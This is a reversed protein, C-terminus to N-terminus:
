TALQWRVDVVASGVVLVVVQLKKYSRRAGTGAIDIVLLAVALKVSQVGRRGSLPMM